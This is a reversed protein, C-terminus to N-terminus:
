QAKASGKKHGKRFNESKRLVGDKSNMLHTCTTGRKKQNARPIRNEGYKKGLGKKKLHRTGGQTRVRYGTRERTGTLATKGAGRNFRGLQNKGLGLRKPALGLMQKTVRGCHVRVGQLDQTGQLRGGGHDGKDLKEARVGNQNSEILVRRNKKGRGKRRGVQKKTRM